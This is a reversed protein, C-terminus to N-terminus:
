ISLYACDDSGIGTNYRCLLQNDNLNEAMLEALRAEVKVRMAEDSELCFNRGVGQAYGYGNHKGLRECKEDSTGNSSEKRYIVDAIRDIRESQSEPRAEQKPPEQAEAENLIRITKRAQYGEWYGMAELYDRRLAQGEYFCVTGSIGIALVVISCFFKSEEMWNKIARWQKGFWRAIRERITYKRYKGTELERRKDEIKQEISM